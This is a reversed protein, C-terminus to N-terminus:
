SITSTSESARAISIAARSEATGPGPPRAVWCGIWTRRIMSSAGDFAESISANRSVAEPLAMQGRGRVGVPGHVLEEPLERWPDDGCHRAPAAVEVGGLVGGLLREDRRGVVPGAVADGRVREAPEHPGRGVAEQVLAPALLGPGAALPEDGEAVRRRRRGALRLRVVGEGHEDHAAM